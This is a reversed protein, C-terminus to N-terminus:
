YNKRDFRWGLRASLFLGSYLDLNDSGASTFITSWDLSQAIQYNVSPSLTLLDSIGLDIGMGIRGFLINESTTLESARNSLISHAIGPTLNLFFGKKFFQGQKSFTPCMCDNRFDLPYFQIVPAFELMTWNLKGVKENNISISEHAYQAHIAPLFELRYKKLRFWYDIGGGILVPFLKTNTSAEAIRSKPWTNV